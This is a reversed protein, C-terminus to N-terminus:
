VISVVGGVADKDHRGLALGDLLVLKLQETENESDTLPKLEVVLSTVIPPVEDLQVFPAELPLPLPGYVKVTVRPEGLVSPVSVMWIAALAAWSAAVFLEVAEL